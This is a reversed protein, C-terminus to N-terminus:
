ERAIPSFLLRTVDSRYKPGTECSVTLEYGLNLKNM